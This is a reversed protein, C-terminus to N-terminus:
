AGFHTGFAANLAAVGADGGHDIGNIGVLMVQALYHQEVADIFGASGSSNFQSALAQVLAQVDARGQNAVLYGEADFGFTGSREAEFCAGLDRYGQAALGMSAALATTAYQTHGAGDLYLHFVEGRGSGPMGALFGGYQPAAEYCDYPMAVASTGYALDGTFPQLWASIATGGDQQDFLAGEFRAGPQAALKAATAPDATLAQDGNALHVAYVPKASAQWGLAVSMGVSAGGGVDFGSGDTVTLVLRDARGDGDKDVLQAQASNKGGGSTVDVWAGSADRLLVANADTGAPLDIVWRSQRGPLAADADAPAAGDRGTITASLAASIARLTAPVAGQAPQVSLASLQAGADLVVAGAAGTSGAMVVGFTAAPAAVGAAFAEPSALPLQTVNPQQWDPVGDGNGDGGRARLEVSPQVGDLDSVVTLPVPTDLKVTGDPAVIQTHLLYVGDDLVGPLVVTRGAAIQEATIAHTGIVRGEPDLVRATDGPRAVTNTPLEFPPRENTAVHDNDVNVATIRTSVDQYQADTSSALLTLAYSQEGDVLTDDVGQLQVTQPTAWNEPTFVLTSAAPRGEGEDSSSLTLTVPAKPASSLRVSFRDASGDEGTKLSAASVVLSPRDNDDNTVSVGARQGDYTADASSAALALEYSVAGDVLTDDVGTVTVTQPQQWNDATFTLRLPAVAGESGDIGGVTVAVPGRPQTALRVTFTASGGDENTHGSVPGLVLGGRDNDLNTGAVSGTLGQYHTDTSTALLQLTYAADGDVRADDVGNVAVVQPQSWNEPTFSLARPGARGETAGGDDIAVTVPGSPLTALHVTFSDSAGAESTQVRDRSLVLAARDNDQNVVAQEAQLGQYHADTSQSQLKVTYAVDGDVAHDDRGTVTVWQPANWNAANFVLTAPGAQGEAGNASIVSIRVEAAPANALSVSFKTTGGAETTRLVGQSGILLGAVDNDDNVLSVSASRAAYGADASAALLNVAYAAAGDILMDDVGTVTVTQPTGWNAANFNLTTPAATGESSNGSAVAIAVAATPETALKVTFTATGGNENTHQSVPGLVLGATDNDDNQVSVQGALGQYSNDTSSTALTVQYSKVDDDVADDVGTVTVTQPTSWNAPTFTLSPGGVTGEGTNNSAVAVTVNQAPQSGLRVTFTASQGAESTHGSISGLVMSVVDDDDNVAAAQGTLGQYAADTSSSGLNVQYNIAGDAMGDDVGTVTVTQPTNWNAATFTLTAPGATGETTDSSLVAVTVDQAPQTALKVTFGTAQGAENTHSSVTGVVLGAVDDDDNTVSVNGTLGQYSNDASASSLNVQYAINGDIQADDVGTVTVTQPTNWNAPTFTLTPSGVTGETTDGSGVTVTVDQAPQSALAVTFTATQGAETTHRSIAGVVLSAGDNDDNTVSVHGTLGQYSNDASAATLNAQYAINGDILADDVGTVTVTQPTAWNVTTFTLTVPTATGESTDGSGVTVTVDASPASSLAVTFTATQGAETTHGSVAGLTYGATVVSDNDNITGTGTDKAIAAFAPDHLLVTFAEASEAAGDDSITVVVTKSTQGPTFILTGTGLATYDSGATASGDHTEYQVTVTDASAASLTVTFTFTGAAEGASVDSISLKPQAALYDNLVDLLGSTAANGTVNGGESFSLSQGNFTLGVYSTASLAYSTSNFTGINDTGLTDSASPSFVMTSPSNGSPTRWKVFGPIAHEVGNKDTILVTGIIDNGQAVFVNSPSNQTFQVNTWGMEAFSYAPSSSNNGTNTGIFGGSFSVTIQGLAHPWAALAEPAFVAAPDVHVAAAGADFQWRTDTGRTGLFGRSAAVEAGTLRALTALFEDDAGSECGWLVIRQVRWQSLLAAHARLAGADIWQGGLQIRGAAGHGVLHLTDLPTGALATSILALADAEPLVPLVPVRAAPLLAAIDAAGADAAILAPGAVAPVAALLTAVSAPLPAAASTSVTRRPLATPMPNRRAETSSARGKPASPRFRVM